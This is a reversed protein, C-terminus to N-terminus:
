PQIEEKHERCWDTGYACCWRASCLMSSPNAMFAWPDGPAIDREPDGERFTKLGIELHKLVAQAAIECSGVDFTFEQAAPQDRKVPVRPVWDIGAGAIDIGDSRALLSYSGVQPKHYGLKSGGKLDRIKGPERAIVDSQGSVVLGQKSWPVIAQLRQEIRLPIIKPAVDRRYIAAMRRVQIEADDMNKSTDDFDVGDAVELRLTDIAVDFTVSIPPLNGTDAKETLMDAAAAHLGTGVAAGIGQRRERLVYGAAAIEDPIITCIARRMCDGCGSLSSSRAITEGQDNM